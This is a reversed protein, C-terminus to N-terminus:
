SCSRSSRGSSSSIFRRIPLVALERPLWHPSVRYERVTGSAQGRLLPTALPYCPALTALGQQRPSYGSPFVGYPDSLMAYPRPGVSQRNLLNVNLMASPPRIYLYPSCGVSRILIGEVSSRLLLLATSARAIGQLSSSPQSHALPSGFRLSSSERAPAPEVCDLRYDVPVFYERM